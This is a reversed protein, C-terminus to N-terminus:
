AAFRHERCIKHTEIQWVPLNTETCIYHNDEVNFNICSDCSGFSKVDCGKQLTFLTMKLADDLSAYQKSLVAQQAQEFIDDHNAEELLKEGNKSLLLHTVRADEDDIEKELYGKRELVQLTQSVTGKTLGFYETIGVATNSYSNCASLYDLVQIHIPQLGLAAYKKREEARVITSIREILKFTSLNQM